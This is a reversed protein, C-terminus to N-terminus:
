SFQKLKAIFDGLLNMLRQLQRLSLAKDGKAATMETPPTFIRQISEVLFETHKTQLNGQDDPPLSKRVMDSYPELSLSLASRYAYEEEMQREHTYQKISFYFLSIPVIGVSTKVILSVWYPADQLAAFTWGSLAVIIWVVTLVASVAILKGWVQRQAFLEERRKEFAHFLSEGTALRLAYETREILENVRDFKQETEADIEFLKNQLAEEYKETFEQAQNITEEIRKRFTNGDAFLRQLDAQINKIASLEGQAQNQTNQIQQTFDRAQQLLNQVELHSQSTKRYLEETQQTTQNVSQFNQQMQEFQQSLERLRQEYKQAARLAQEADKTLQILEARRKEYDIEGERRATIRYRYLLDHLKDSWETFMSVADNGSILRQVANLVHQLTQELENWFFVSLSDSRRSSLLRNLTERDEQLRKVAFDLDGYGRDKPYGYQEVSRQANRLAEDTLQSLLQRINDSM